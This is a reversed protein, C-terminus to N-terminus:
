AQILFIAPRKHLEPKKKKWQEVTKTQIFESPSTLDAAICIRTQPHCTQLLAELMQNNRYPTEIFIQTSQKQKSEAEIAKIKKMRESQEIPLYGLFSFQQGNMGSGMLALLISNPGVLPKVQANMEHAIEVLQQGPDAIGPCGAESLIGIQKNDKISSRFASIVAPTIEKINVWNYQDIIMEKWSLKLNRRATRENEVFFISCQKIADLLYAPLTETEGEYLVTPILYVISSM